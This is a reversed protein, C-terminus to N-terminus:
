KSALHFIIKNFCVLYDTNHKYTLVAHCARKHSTETEIAFLIKFNVEMAANISNVM